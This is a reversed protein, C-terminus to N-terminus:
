WTLILNKYFKNLLFKQESPQFVSQSVLAKLCVYAIAISEVDNQGSIHRKALRLLELAQMM